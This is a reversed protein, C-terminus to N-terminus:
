SGLRPMKKLPRGPPMKPKSPKSRNTRLLVLFLEIDTLLRRKHRGANYVLKNFVPNRKGTELYAKIADLEFDTFIYGRM